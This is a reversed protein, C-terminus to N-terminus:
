LDDEHRYKRAEKMEQRGREADRESEMHELVKTLGEIAKTLERLQRTHEKAIQQNEIEFGNM